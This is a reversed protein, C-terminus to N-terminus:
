AARGRGENPGISVSVSGMVRRYGWGGILDLM